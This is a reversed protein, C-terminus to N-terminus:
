NRLTIDTANALALARRLERDQLGFARRASQSGPSTGFMLFPYQAYVPLNHHISLAAVQYLSRLIMYRAEPLLTSVTVVLALKFDSNKCQRQGMLPMSLRNPGSLLFQLTSSSAESNPQHKFTARQNRKFNESFVGNITLQRGISTKRSYWRYPHRADAVLFWLGHALFESYNAVFKRPHWLTAKVCKRPSRSRM